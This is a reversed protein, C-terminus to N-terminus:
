RYIQAGQPPNTRHDWFLKKVGRGAHAGVGAGAFPNTASGPLVVELALTIGVAVVIFTAFGVVWEILDM